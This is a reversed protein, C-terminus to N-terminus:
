SRLSISPYDKQRPVDKMLSMQTLIHNIGDLVRKANEWEEDTYPDRQDLVPDGDPDYRNDHYPRDILMFQKPTGWDEIYKPLRSKVQAQVLTHRFEGPLFPLLEPWLRVLQGATNCGQGSTPGGRFNGRYSDWYKRPDWGNDLVKELRKWLVGRLKKLAIAKNSWVEIKERVPASLDSIEIDLDPLPTGDNLSFSIYTRRYKSATKDDGLYLDFSYSLSLFKRKFPSDILTQLAEWEKDPVAPRYVDKVVDFTVPNVIECYKDFHTCVKNPLSGRIENSLKSM